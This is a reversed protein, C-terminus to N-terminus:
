FVNFVISIDGYFRIIKGGYVKIGLTIAVAHLCGATAGPYSSGSPNEYRM